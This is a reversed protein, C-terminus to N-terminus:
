PLAKVDSLVQNIARIQRQCELVNDRMQDSEVCRLLSDWGGVLVGYMQVEVAMKDATQKATQSAKARTAADARPENAISVISALIKSSDSLDALAAIANQQDRLVESMKKSSLSPSYTDCM